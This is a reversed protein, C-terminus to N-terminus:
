RLQPYHRREGLPRVHIPKRASLLATHALYWPAYRSREAHALAAAAFSLHLSVATDTIRPYSAYYSGVSGRFRVVPHLVHVEDSITVLEHLVQRPAVPLAILITSVGRRRLAAVASRMALGTAAGDDVLVVSKGAISTPSRELGCGPVRAALRERADTLTQELWEVDLGCVGLDSQVTPGGHAIAGIPVSKHLPHYLREIPLATLPLGLRTAVECGVAVGGGAIAVCVAGEPVVGRARLSTALRKGADYRSSFFSRYHM